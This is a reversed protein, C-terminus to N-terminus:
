PEGCPHCSRCRSAAAGAAPRIWPDAVRWGLLFPFGGHELTKTIADLPLKPRRVHRDVALYRSLRLDILLRLDGRKAEAKGAANTHSRRFGTVMHGGTGTATQAPRDARRGLPRRRGLPVDRGSLPSGFGYSTLLM